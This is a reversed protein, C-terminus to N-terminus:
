QGMAVMLTATTGTALVQTVQVPLITGAPVSSFTVTSGGTTVVAVNGTGGVYLAAANINITATDSPTVAALRRAPNSISMKM